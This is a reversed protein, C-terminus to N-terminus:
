GVLALDGLDLRLEAASAPPVDLDETRVLIPGGPADVVLQRGDDFATTEGLSTGVYTSTFPSETSATVWADWDDAPGVRIRATTGDDLEFSCGVLDISAEDVSVGGFSQDATVVPAVVEEIAAAMPECEPDADATLGLGLAIVALQEAGVLDPEGDTDTLDAFVVLDGDLVAVDDGSRYAEDGLDDVPTFGGSEADRQAVQDLETFLDDVEIGSDEAPRLRAISVQGETEVYDYDCGSSSYSPGDTSGFGGASVSRDVEAGVIEAVDAESPCDADDGEGSEAATTTTGEDAPDTTTSGATAETTTSAAADDSGDSPCGALGLAVRLGALGLAAARTPRRPTSRRPTPTM